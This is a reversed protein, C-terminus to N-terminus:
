KVLRRFLGVTVAGRRHVPEVALLRIECTSAGPPLWRDLDPLKQDLSFPRRSRLAVMGILRPPADAEHALCIVYTNEAHFKDVLRPESSPAPQPIEEVFTRYNLRHVAEFEREDAAIKFELRRSDRMREGSAPAGDRTRRPALPAGRASRPPADLPDSRRPARRGRRDDLPTPPPRRLP